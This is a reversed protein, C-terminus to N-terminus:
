YGESEEETVYRKEKIDHVMRSLSEINKTLSPLFQKFAKELGGVRADLEEMTMSFTNLKSDFQKTVPEEKAAKFQQEFQKITTELKEIEDEYKKIKKNFTQWKEDIVGEILEEIITEPSINEVPGTEFQQQQPPPAIDDLAFTDSSPAEQFGGEFRPPASSSPEEVGARVAELMSKEIQDYSYGQKKLKKVIERDSMGKQTLARIKDVPVPGSKKKSKFFM